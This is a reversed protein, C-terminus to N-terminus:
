WVLFDWNQFLKHNYLVPNKDHHQPSQMIIGLCQHINDRFTRPFLRVKENKWSKNIRRFILTHLFSYWNLFLVLEFIIKKPLKMSQWVYFLYVFLVFLIESCNKDLLQKLFITGITIWSKTPQGGREPMKWFHPTCRPTPSASMTPSRPFLVWPALPASPTLRSSLFRGMRQLGAFNDNEIYNYITLTSRGLLM